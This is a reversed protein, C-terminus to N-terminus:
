RVNNITVDTVDSLGFDDRLIKQTKLNIEVENETTTAKLLSKFDSYDVEKAGGLNFLSIALIIAAVIAIIILLTKKSSNKKEM